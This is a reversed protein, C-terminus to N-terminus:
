LKELTRKAAARSGHNKPAVELFKQLSAKAAKRKGSKDQARGLFLWAEPYWPEDKATVATAAGFAGIAPGLRNRELYIRGSLYQAELLTADLELAKAFAALADDTKDLDRRARGINLYAAPFADTKATVFELEGLAQKAQGAYALLRGHLFRAELHEPDLAAARQYEVRADSHKDNHELIKGKLVFVEAVPKPTRVSEIRSLAEQPDGIDLVAQAMLMAAEWNNGDSAMVETLLRKADEPRGQSLRLRAAVVKVEGSATSENARDGVLAELQRLEGAAVFLRGLPGVLGPYAGTRDYVVLLDAKGGAADGASMRTNGRLVQADNDTPSAELARDLAVLAATTQGQAIQYRAKATLLEAVKHAGNEVERLRAVGADLAAVAEVKMRAADLMVAQALAVRHFAPDKDIVKAFEAKAEDVQLRMAQVEGRYFPVEVRDPVLKALLELSALAEDGKGGAVALEVGLLLVDVSDPDITRLANMAETAPIFLQGDIGARVKAHLVAADAPTVELAEDFQAMAGRTDGRAAAVQGRVAALQGRFGAPMTDGVLKSVADDALRLEGRALAHEALLKGLGPHDPAAAAATKLEGFASDPDSALKAELALNKGMALSGAAKVEVAVKEPQEQALKMLARYTALRPDEGALAAAAPEYQANIIAILGVVRKVYPEEGKVFPEFAAAGAKASELDPGYRLHLLLLAEAQGVADGDNQAAKAAQMYGTPTDQDLLALVEASRDKAQAPPAKDEGEKGAKPDKAKTVGRQGSAEPPADDFVGAVYLGGLLAVGLGLAAVGYILKRSGASDTLARPTPGNPQAYGPRGGLAGPDLGAAPGVGAEKPALGGASRSELGMDAPSLGTGSPELDLNAPAVLNDAPEMDLGAVPELHNLR